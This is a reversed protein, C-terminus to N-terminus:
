GVAKTRMLATELQEFYDMIVVPEEIEMSDYVEGYDAQDTAVQDDDADTASDAKIIGVSRVSARRSSTEPKRAEEVLSRRHSGPVAAVMSPRRPEPQLLKSGRNNLRAPQLSRRKSDM